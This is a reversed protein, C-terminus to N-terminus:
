AEETTTTTKRHEPIEADKPETKDVAEGVYSPFSYLLLLLFLDVFSIYNGSSLLFQKTYIYM